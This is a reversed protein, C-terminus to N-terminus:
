RLLLRDDGGATSLRVGTTPDYVGLQLWAAPTVEPPRSLTQKQFFLDGAQLSGYLVALGDNQSLIRGDEALWHVFVTRQDGWAPTRELRWVTLLMGQDEDTQWQYGLFTLEEGFAVPLAVTTLSQGPRPVLEVSQYAEAQFFALWRQAAPRLDAHLTYTGSTIMGLPAALEVAVPTTEHIFWWGAGAPIVFSYQADFQRPRVNNAGLSKRVDDPLDAVNSYGSMLVTLDDPPRPAAYELRLIPWAPQWPNLAGQYANFVSVAALGALILLRRSSRGAAPHLAFLALVPVPTLLWRPSYAYGGYNNTYLVFYLLYLVISGAVAWALWRRTADLDGLTKLLAGIYWLLIPYFALVGHDGVFLHFAYLPVNDARQNGAVTDAFASGPYDFAHPAMQPFLLTGSIQVNLYLALAAPALGGVIFWAVKQRYRAAVYLFLGITFAAASNDLTAALTACCGAAVLTERGPQPHTLLLAAAATVLAATPVHNTLATSYPFIATGLGLVLVFALGSLPPMGQRHALQYILTLLAAAPLTS